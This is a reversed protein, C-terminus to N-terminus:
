TVPTTISIGGSLAPQLAAPIRPEIATPGFTSCPCSKIQVYRSTATPLCGSSMTADTTRSHLNTGIVSRGLARLARYIRRRFDATIASKHEIRTAAVCPTPTKSSSATRPFNVIFQHGECAQAHEGMGGRSFSGALRANLRAKSSKKKTGVPRLLDQKRPSPHHRARRREELVNILSIGFRKGVGIDMRRREESSASGELSSSWTTWALSSSTRGSPM